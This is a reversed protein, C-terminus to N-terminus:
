KKKSKKTKKKKDKKKDKKIDKKKDKAKGKDKGKKRTKKKQEKNASPAASEEVVPVPVQETIDALDLLSQANALIKTALAVGFGPIAVIQEINCSVLKEVTDIGHNILTQAKVDGLGNVESLIYNSM